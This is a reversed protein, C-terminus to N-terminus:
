LKWEWTEDYGDTIVFKTFGNEKMTPFMDQEQHSLQYAVVKSVLAWKFRLIRHHPGVANVDVNYGNSLMRNEIDKAMSIRVSENVAESDAAEKRLQATTKPKVLPTPIATPVSAVAASAATQPAVPGEAM